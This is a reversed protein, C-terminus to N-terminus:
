APGSGADLPNQPGGDNATLIAMARAFRDRILAVNAAAAGTAASVAERARRGLELAEDRNELLREVVAALEERGSVRIAAKRGELLAAEDTFNYVHPGYIVAKGKGAPELM